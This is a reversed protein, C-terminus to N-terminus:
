AADADDEVEEYLSDPWNSPIEGTAQMKEWVVDRVKSTVTIGEVLGTLASVKLAGAATFNDPDAEEVLLKIATRIKNQVPTFVANTSQTQVASSEESSIDIEEIDREDVDVTAYVTSKIEGASGVGPIETETRKVRNVEKAGYKLCERVAIAPVFKPENPEFRITYGATTAVTLASPSVMFASKYTSSM